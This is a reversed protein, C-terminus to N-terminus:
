HYTTSRRKVPPAEGPFQPDPADHDYHTRLKPGKAANWEQVENGDRDRSYSINSSKESHHSKSSKSSKSSLGTSSRSIKGPQPEVPRHTRIKMGHEDDGNYERILNGQADRSETEYNEHDRCDACDCGKEKRSNRHSEAYESRPPM